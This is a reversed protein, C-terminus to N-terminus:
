RNKSLKITRRGRRRGICRQWRWAMEMMMTAMTMTTMKTVGMGLKQPSAHMSIKQSALMSALKCLCPPHKHKHSAETSHRREMMQIDCFCCKFVQDSWPIFCWCHNKWGWCWFDYDGAELWATFKASCSIFRLWQDTMAASSTCLMKWGNVCFTLLSGFRKSLGSVVLSLLLQCFESAVDKSQCCCFSDEGTPFVSVETPYRRLRRFIHNEEWKQTEM